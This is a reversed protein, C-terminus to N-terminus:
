SNWLKQYFNNHLLEFPNSTSVHSQYMKGRSTLTYKLPLKNRLKWQDLNLWLKYNKLDFLGITKMKWKDGYTKLITWSLVYEIVDDSSTEVNVIKPVIEGLVDLKM